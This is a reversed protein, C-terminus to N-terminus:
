AAVTALLYSDAYLTTPNAGDTVLQARRLQLNGATASTRVLGDIVMGTKVGTVTGAPINGTGSWAEMRVASVSLTTGISLARPVLQVVAGSPATFAVKFDATNAGTQDYILVARVMYTTNALLPVVLDADDAIIDNVLVSDSTKRAFAGASTEGGDVLDVPVLTGGASTQIARGVPSGNPVSAAYHPLSADRYLVQGATVAGTRVSAGRCGPPAVLVIDGPAAAATVAAGAYGGNATLRQVLGTFVWQLLEGVNIGLNAYRAEALYEGFDVTWGGSAATGRIFEGAGTPVSGSIGPRPCRYRNSANSGARTVDWIHTGGSPIPIPTHSAKFENAFMNRLWCAAVHQMAPDRFQAAPNSSGGLGLVNCATMSTAGVGSTATGLDAFAFNGFNELSLGLGVVNAMWAASAAAGGDERLFAIPGYGCKYSVFLETFMTNSGKCVHGARKNHIAGGGLFMHDGGSYADGGAAPYDPRVVGDYNLQVLTEFLMAHDGRLRVGERFYQVACRRLSCHPAMRVGGMAINPNGIAPTLVGGPGDVTVDDLHWSDVLGTADAPDHDVLYEDIGFEGAAVLRSRSRNDGSLITRPRMIVPEDCTTETETLRVNGGEDEYAATLAANLRAAITAGPFWRPNLRGEDARATMSTLFTVAKTVTQAPGGTVLATGPEGDPTEGYTGPPIAPEKGDVDAQLAADAAIRAEEEADLAATTAVDAGVKAATVAGDEIKATTVAGDALETDILEHPDRVASFPLTVGDMLGDYDGPELFVSLNGNNDTNTPNPAPTSKTRDTFLEALTSTGRLYITIPRGRKANGRRDIFPQPWVARGAFTAV